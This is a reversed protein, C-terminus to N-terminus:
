RNTLQVGVLYRSDRAQEYLDRAAATAALRLKNLLYVAIVLMHAYRGVLSVAEYHLVGVAIMARQIAAGLAYPIVLADVLPVVFTWGLDDLIYSYSLNRLGAARVRDIRQKLPQFLDIGM